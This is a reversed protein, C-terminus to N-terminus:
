RVVPTLSLIAVEADLFSDGDSGDNSDSLVVDPAQASYMVLNELVIPPRSETLDFVELDMQGERMIAPAVLVLMDDNVRDVECLMGGIRVGINRLNRGIITVRTDGHPPCMLPSVSDVVIDGPAVAHNLCVCM